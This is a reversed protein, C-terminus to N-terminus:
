EAPELAPADTAGLSSKRKTMRLRVLWFLMVAFPAFALAFLIPSGRVAEPMVDQQGIFFSGTAAFFAFCMRWLHRTIRQAPTLKTRLVARLDGLGALLCFLAVAFLPGTGAPTTAGTFAGLTVLGALGFATSCAAIEFAGTRGDRRRAAAWSTMVFYCTLVGGLGIEPDKQLWALPTATLGSVLMAGFFILGARGHLRGGKRAGAAIAGAPLAVIGAAIHIAMLGNM